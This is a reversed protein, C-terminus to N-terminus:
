LAKLINNGRLKQSACMAKDNHFSLRYIRACESMDLVPVDAKMPVTSLLNRCLIERTTMKKKTAGWGAITGMKLNAFHDNSQPLSIRFFMKKLNLKRYVIIAVDNIHTRLSYKGHRIVKGVGADIPDERCIQDGGLDEAWDKTSSVTHEGIRVAILPYFHETVCHATKLIYIYIRTILSGGCEITNYVLLTSWPFELLTTEVGFSVRRGLFAGFMRSTSSLIRQGVPNRADDETDENGYFTIKSLQINQVYTANKKGTSKATSSTLNSEPGSLIAKQEGVM